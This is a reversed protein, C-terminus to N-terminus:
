GARREDQHEAPETDDQPNPRRYVPLRTVFVLAAATLVVGAAILVEM